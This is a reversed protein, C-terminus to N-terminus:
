VMEAPRLASAHTKATVTDKRGHTALLWYAPFVTILEHLDEQSVPKSLFSQAGLAYAKKINDLHDLQSLVVRLTKAFETRDQLWQLIEFGNMGPLKLDLLLISPVPRGGAAA